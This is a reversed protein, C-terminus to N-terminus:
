FYNKPINFYNLVLSIIISLFFGILTGSIAMLSRDPYSKYEPIVASDIIRFVYDKNVSALMYTQMQSEHLNTISEKLTSFNTKAAEINLFAIANNALEKDAERMSENINVVILDLWDKAIIPSAHTITITIFSTKKDENISILKKYYQYAEQDSPIRTLPFSVSRVWEKSADDFISEDYTLQNVEASWEKVAMLDELAINPLFYDSFFDLSRIREVAEVSKSQNPSLNFPSISQVASISGSYVSNNEISNSPALLISSSYMNPTKIAIFLSLLASFITVIIILYKYKLINRFLESLDLEDAENIENFKETM